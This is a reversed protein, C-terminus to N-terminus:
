PQLSSLYPFEQASLIKSISRLLFFLKITQYTSAQRENWYSDCWTTYLQPFLLRLISLIGKLYRTNESLLAEWRLLDQLFSVTHTQICFCHSEYTVLKKWGMGVRLEYDGETLNRKMKVIGRHFLLAFFNIKIAKSKAYRSM